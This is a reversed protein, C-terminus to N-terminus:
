FKTVTMNGSAKWVVTNPSGTIKVVLAENTDDAEVVANMATNEEQMYNNQINGVISTVNSGNRKITGTYHYSVTDVNNNDIGVIKIDFLVVSNTELVYRNDVTGNIFLETETNGTTTGTWEIGGSTDQWTLMGAGDTKLVQGNSGDTNPLTYSGLKLTGALYSDATSESYIAHSVIGIDTSAAIYLACSDNVTASGTINYGTLYGGIAVGRVIDVNDDLHIGVNVGEVVAATNSMMVLSKFGCVFDNVPGETEVLAINGTVSNVTGGKNSAISESGLINMLGNGAAINTGTFSGGVARSYDLINSESRGIVGYSPDGFTNIGAVSEFSAGLISPSNTGILVKNSLTNPYLTGSDETWEGSGGSGGEGLTTITGFNDKFYLKTVGSDDGAYLRAVNPQPNIPASVEKIDIYSEAIFSEKVTLGKSITTNGSGSLTINGAPNDIVVNENLANSLYLANDSTQTYGVSGLNSGDKDAFHIGALLSSETSDYQTNKIEIQPQQGKVSLKGNKTSSGIITENGLLKIDGAGSPEIVINQNVNAVMPQGNMNLPNTLPAVPQGVGVGSLLTEKSLTMIDGSVIDKILFMDDGAVSLKENSNVFTGDSIITGPNTFSYTGATTAELSVGAGSITLSNNANDSVITTTDKSIELITTDNSGTIVFGDTQNQIGLNITSNNSM